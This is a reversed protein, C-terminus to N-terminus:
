EVTIVISGVKNNDSIAKITTTGRTLARVMGSSSVTAVSPNSSTYTLNKNTANSPYISVNLYYSTGINITKSSPSIIVGTVSVTTSTNPVTSSCNNATFKKTKSTINGASDSVSYYITYTGANNIIGIDGSVKVKSTIDGDVNDRAVYGYPGNSSVNARSGVCITQYLSDDNFSIIPSTTDTPKTPTQTSTNTNSNTTNNSNNNTTNNTSNNTNNNNNTTNNTNTNPKTEEKKTEEKKEEKPKEKVIVERTISAKNNSTDIATYKVKYTGATKTDVNSTIKIKKSIDGDINDIAIAGLEEYKDGVTLTITADGFLQIKPKETDKQTQTTENNQKGSSPMVGYGETTYINKCKIYSKYTINNSIVENTSLKDSSTEDDYIKSNETENKLANAIVYGECDSSRKNTVFGQKLIDKVDIKRWEYESLTIKEKQIYNPASYELQKEYNKYENILKNKNVKNIIFIMCVIMILSALIIIKTKTLWKTEEM